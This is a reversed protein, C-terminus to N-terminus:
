LYIVSINRGCVGDAFKHAYRSSFYCEDSSFTDVNLLEINRNRLGSELLREQCYRALDFHLKTNIICFCYGNGNFNKKFDDGVEYNNRSICPGVAARICYLEAGLHVMKDVTAEIVGSVAGRWGAHAAAIVKNKDDFFLIPACDAALIGLAIGPMNTAMADARTGSLPTEDDVEICGNGAVQELTVLKRAGVAGRVLELNKVVSSEKDGVYLSCNLSEYGGVSCGSKRGFFGHKASLSSLIGAELVDISM